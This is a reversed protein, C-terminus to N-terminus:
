RRDYLEERTWGRGQSRGPHADMLRFMENVMAQRDTGVTKVLLDQVLDDLSTQHRAAYSRGAEVVEDDLALTIKAV